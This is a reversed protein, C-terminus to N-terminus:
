SFFVLATTTGCALGLTCASSVPRHAPAAFSVCRQLARIGGKCDQVIEVLVPIGTMGATSKAANEEFPDV